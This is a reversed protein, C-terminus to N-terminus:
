SREGRGPPSGAEPGGRNALEELLAKAEVLDRTDFGETCRAHVASLLTRAEGVKGRAGWLRGLCVAARLELWKAGQGRAIDIATLFASEAEKERATSTEPRADAAAAPPGSSLKGQGGSSHGTAAQLALVGNLRHLEADWYRQGTERGMSLAEAVASLGAEPWGLQGFIEALLGLFSPRRLEMGIERAAALGAQTMALGEEGRGELSLAWGRHIAGLMPFLRFGHETSCALAEDELESVAAREGRMQHFGAAFHCVYATTFPHDLSRALELAGRMREVARAPYGTLQLALATYVACSVGPDQGGRFAPSRDPGHRARDYFVMAQEMHALASAFDGGHFAMIGLAGHAALRMEPDGSAEAAAM